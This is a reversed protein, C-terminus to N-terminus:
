KCKNDADDMDIMQVGSANRANKAVRINIKDMPGTAGLEYPSVCFNVAELKFSPTSTRKLYDTLISSLNVHMGLNNNIERIKANVQIATGNLVLTNITGSGPHRIILISGVYAGGSTNQITSDWRPRYEEMYYPEVGIKNAVRNGNVDAKWQFVSPDSPVLGGGLNDNVNGAANAIVDYVFVTNTNTEGLLNVSEGFVVLKGYVAVGSNGKGMTQPDSVGSYVSQMFEYFNRVTDDFRQRVLSNQVSVVITIFLVATIALFLTIEIFTFGKHKSMGVNYWLFHDPYKSEFWPCQTYLVCARVLQAIGRSYINYCLKM